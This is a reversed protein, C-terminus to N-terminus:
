NCGIMYSSTQFRETLYALEENPIPLSELVVEFREELNPNQQGRNVGFLLTIGLGLQLFHLLSLSFLISGYKVQSWLVVM